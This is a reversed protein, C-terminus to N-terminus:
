KSSAVELCERLISLVEEHLKERSDSYDINMLNFKEHTLPCNDCLTTIDANCLDFVCCKFYSKIDDDWSWIWSLNEIRKIAEQISQVLDKRNRCNIILQKKFDEIKM